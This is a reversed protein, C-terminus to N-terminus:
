CGEVEASVALAQAVRRCNAAVDGRCLAGIMAASDAGSALVDWVNGADIGGIAVIPKDTAERALRLLELGVVPDPNQKGVTPFVPGVAIVDVAPDSDAARVQSLDHTSQGIWVTEGVVSRATEPTLDEQGLHLGQVPYISAIDPRDNIWFDAATASVASLCREVLDCLERDTVDKARLQVWCVGEAVAAAVAEPLGARGVIAADIVAYLPPVRDRHLGARAM